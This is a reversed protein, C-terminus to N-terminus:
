IIKTITMHHGHIHEFVKQTYDKSKSRTTISSRADDKKPGWQFILRFITGTYYELISAKNNLRAYFVSYLRYIRFVLTGGGPCGKGRARARKFSQNSPPNRSTTAKGQSFCTM